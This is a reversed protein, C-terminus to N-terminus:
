LKSGSSYAQSATEEGNRVPQLYQSCMVSVARSKMWCQKVTSWFCRGDASCSRCCSHSLDSSAGPRLSGSARSPLKRLKSGWTWRPKLALFVQLDAKALNTIREPRTADSATKAPNLGGVRELSQIGFRPLDSCFDVRSLSRSPGLLDRHTNDRKQQKASSDVLVALIDLDV